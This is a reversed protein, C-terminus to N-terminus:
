KYKAIIEKIKETTLDVCLGEWRVIGKPDVLQVYSLVHLEMTKWIAEGTNALCYEIKPEITRLQNISNRACGIIVLDDAFEKNWRNLKPIAKRCPGCHFSFFDRLVFKGKTKPKKPYWENVDLEPAKEGLLPKAMSRDIGGNEYNYKKMLNEIVEATLEYGKQGPNGEWRVIGRTDLLVAHPYGKVEFYKQIYKKGRIDIASYYEIVPEKMKRVLEETNPAVGIVVLKDKFRKSIENLTPINARCPGCSPGWFDILVFKGETDPEETLWKDVELRLAERNLWSKAHLKKDGNSEGERTNKTATTEQKSGASTNTVKVNGGGLAKFLNQLDEMSKVEMKITKRVKGDSGVSDQVEKVNQAQGHYFTGLLAFVVLFIKSKKM